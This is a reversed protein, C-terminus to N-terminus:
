WWWPGTFFGRKEIMGLERAEARTFPMVTQDDYLAGSLDALRIDDIVGRLYAGRLNTDRLDAGSLYGSLNAYKLVSGRLNAKNLKAGHLDNYPMYSDSLNAGILNANRFTCGSLACKSLNAAKLNFGTLNCDGTLDVIERSLYSKSLDACVGMKTNVLEEITIKNYGENGASDKCVWREGDFEPQYVLGSYDQSDDLVDKNKESSAPTPLELDIDSTDMEGSQLQNLQENFGVADRFDAPYKSTNKATSAFYVASLLAVFFLTVMIKM